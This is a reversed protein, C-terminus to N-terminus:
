APYIFNATVDRALVAFLGCCNFLSSPLGNLAFSFVHDVISFTSDTVLIAIAIIGVRWPASSGNNLDAQCNGVFAMFSSSANSGVYPPKKPAYAITGSEFRRVSKSWFSPPSLSAAHAMARSWLASRESITSFVQCM